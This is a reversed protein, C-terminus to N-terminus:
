PAWAIQVWRAVSSLLWEQAGLESFTHNIEPRYDIELCERFDVQRLADTFQDQYNYYGTVGGTYVVKLRVGRDALAQFGAATEAVPPPIPPVWGRFPGAGGTAQNAGSAGPDGVLGFFRRGLRSLERRSGLRLIRTGHDRLHFGRTQYTYSMGDILVAGVVREDRCAARFSNDAGSCIGALVFRRAGVARELYAFAAAIDRAVGEAHPLDLPRRESDGLGALDFRLAPCGLAALRRALRVPLRHPGVRPLLGANLIVVAPLGPAAGAAPPATLIGALEPEVGFVAVSERM